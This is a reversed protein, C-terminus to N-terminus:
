TVLGRVMADVLLTLQATLAGFEMAGNAVGTSAALLVAAAGGPDAVGLEALAAALAGVIRQEAAAFAPGALRDKAAFLDAAFPSQRAVRFAMEHKAQLAARIRAAAPGPGALAAQVSEVIQEALRDAVQRFADEKDSFYAYATARAVGAEAAIREMSAGRLGERAFVAQAAEILRERRAEVRANTATVSM